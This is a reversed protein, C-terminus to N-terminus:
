RRREEARRFGETLASRARLMAIYRQDLNAQRLLNDAADRAYGWRVLALRAAGASLIEDLRTPLRNQELDQKAREGCNCAALYEAVSSVVPYVRAPLRRERELWLAAFREELAAEADVESDDLRTIADQLELLDLNAFIAYARIARVFDQVAQAKAVLSEMPLASAIELRESTERVARALERRRLDAASLSFIKEVSLGALAALAAAGGGRLWRPARQYLPAHGRFRFLTMAAQAGLATAYISQKSERELEQALRIATPGFDIAEAPATPINELGQAVTNPLLSGGMLAGSAPAITQFWSFYAPVARAGGFLLTSAGFLLGWNKGDAIAERRQGKLFLYDDLFEREWDMQLRALILDVRFPHRIRATALVLLNEEYTTRNQFNLHGSFILEGCAEALAHVGAEGSSEFEPLRVLRDVLEAFSHDADCGEVSDAASALAPTGLASFGAIAIWVFIKARSFM